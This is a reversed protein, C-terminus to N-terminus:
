RRRVTLYTIIAVVSAFLLSTVLTVSWTGSIRSTLDTFATIFTASVGLSGILAALSFDVAKAKNGLARLVQATRADLRLSDRLEDIERLLNTSDSSPISLWDTLRSIQKRADLAFPDMKFVSITANELIIREAGIAGIALSYLVDFAFERRASTQLQGDIPMEAPKELAIASTAFVTNSFDLRVQFEKLIQDQTEILGLRRLGDLKSISSPSVEGVLVLENFVNRKSIQIVQHFTIGSSFKLGSNKIKLHKVKASSYTKNGLFAVQRSLGSGSSSWSLPWGSEIVFEKSNLKESQLLPMALAFRSMRGGISVEVIM